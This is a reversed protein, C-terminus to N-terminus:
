QTQGIKLVGPKNVEIACDYIDLTDRTNNISIKIWGNYYYVKPNKEVIKEVGMYRIGKGAIDTRNFQSAIIITDSSFTGSYVDGLEFFMPEYSTYISGLLKYDTKLSICRIFFSDAKIGYFPIERHFLEFKFDPVLDQDLDISYSENETVKVNLPQLNIILKEENALLNEKKCSASIIILLILLAILTRMKKNKIKHIIFLM